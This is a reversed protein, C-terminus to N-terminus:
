EVVEELGKEFVSVIADTASEIDTGKVDIWHIFLDQGQIDMTLTGPTLTISSSLMLKALPSKLKTRVRVVGPNLPLSPSLVRKAVDINALILQWLFIFFYLFLKFIPKIGPRFGDFLGAQERLFLTILAAVLAGAILEEYQFSSTLLVWVVFLGVFM